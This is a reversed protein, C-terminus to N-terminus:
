QINLSSFARNFLNSREAQGLGGISEENGEITSLLDVLLYVAEYEKVNELLSVMMQKTELRTMPSM